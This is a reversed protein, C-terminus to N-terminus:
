AVKFRVRYHGGDGFFEEVPMQGPAIKVRKPVDIRDDNGKPFNLYISSLGLMANQIAGAATARQPESAPGPGGGLLTLMQAKWALATQMKWAGLVEDGNIDRANDEETCQM